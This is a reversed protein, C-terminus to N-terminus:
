FIKYEMEYVEKLEMSKGRKLQEFVVGLSLPSLSSLRKLAKQAFESDSEELRKVLDKM